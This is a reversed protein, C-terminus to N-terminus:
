IRDTAGMKQLQGQTCQLICGNFTVYKEGSKLNSLPKKSRHKLPDSVLQIMDLSESIMGNQHAGPVMADTANRFSIDIMM